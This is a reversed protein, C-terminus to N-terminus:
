VIYAALLPRVNSWISSSISQSQQGVVGSSHGGGVEGEGARAAAKVARVRWGTVGVQLSPAMRGPCFNTVEENSKVGADMMAEGRGGGCGSGSEGMKWGVTQKWGVTSVSVSKRKWGEVLMIGWTSLMGSVDEGTGSLDCWRSEGLRKEKGASSSTNPKSSSTNPNGNVLNGGPESEEPQAPAVEGQVTASRARYSSTQVSLILACSGTGALRWSM